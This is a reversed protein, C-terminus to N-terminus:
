VQQPLNLESRFVNSAINIQYNTAYEGTTSIWYPPVSTVEMVGADYVNYEALLEDITSIGITIGNWTPGQGTLNLPCRLDEPIAGLLGGSAETSTSSVFPISETEEGLRTRDNEVKIQTFATLGIVTMLITILLKIRHRGISPM